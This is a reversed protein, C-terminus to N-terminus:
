NEEALYDLAEEKTEFPIFKITTVVNFGLLLAKKLGTVGLLAGKSIRGNLSRKAMAKVEKMFEANLSTGTVDVMSLVEGPQALTFRESERMKSILEETTKCSTYDTFIIKKGKHSISTVSM